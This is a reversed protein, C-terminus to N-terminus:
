TVLRPPSSVTPRPSSMTPSPILPSVLPKRQDQINPDPDGYEDDENAQTQTSYSFKGQRMNRWYGILHNIQREFEENDEMDALESSLLRTIRTAEKYKEAATWQRQKIVGERSFKNAKLQDVDHLQPVPTVADNNSWRPVCLFLYVVCLCFVRIVQMTDEMYRDLYAQWTAWDKHREIPPPVSIDHDLVQVLPVLEDADVEEYEYPHEVDEQGSGYGSESVTVAEEPAEDSDGPDSAESVEVEDDYPLHPIRGSSSSDDSDSDKEEDEDGFIRRVREKEAERAERIRQANARIRKVDM